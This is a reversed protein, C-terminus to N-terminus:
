SVKDLSERIRVLAVAHVVLLEGFHQTAARNKKVMDSFTADSFFSMVKPSIYVCLGFHEFTESIGSFVTDILGM